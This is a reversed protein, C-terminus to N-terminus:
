SGNLPVKMHLAMGPQRGEGPRGGRGSVACRQFTSQM